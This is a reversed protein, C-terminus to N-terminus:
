LSILGFAKVNSRKLCNLILLPTVGAPIFLSKARYLAAKLKATSRRSRVWLGSLPTFSNLSALYRFAGLTNDNSSSARSRIHQSKRSRVITTVNNSDPIRTPISDSRNFHDSISKSSDVIVTTWDLVVAPNRVRGIVSKTFDSSNFHFLAVFPIEFNTNKLGPRGLVCMELTFVAQCVAKFNAPSGRNAM